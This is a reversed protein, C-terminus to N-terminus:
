ISPYPNLDSLLILHTEGETKHSCTAAKAKRLGKAGPECIRTNPLGLKIDFSVFRTMM